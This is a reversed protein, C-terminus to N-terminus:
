HDQVCVLHDHIPKRFMDGNFVLFYASEDVTLFLRSRFFLDQVTAIDPYSGPLLFVMFLDPVASIAPFPDPGSPGFRCASKCIYVKEM